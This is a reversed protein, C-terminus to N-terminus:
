DKDSDHQVQNATCATPDLLFFTSLAANLDEPFPVRYAFVTFSALDPVHLVLDASERGFLLGPLNFSIPPRATTKNSTNPMVLIYIPNSKGPMTPM